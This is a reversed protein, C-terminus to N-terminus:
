GGPLISYYGYETRSGLIKLEVGSDYTALLLRTAGNADSLKTRNPGGWSNIWSVSASKRKM